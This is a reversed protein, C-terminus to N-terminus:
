TYKNELLKSHDPDLLSRTTEIGASSIINKVPIEIDNVLIGTVANNKVIIKQVKSKMM